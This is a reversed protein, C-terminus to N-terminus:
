AATSGPNWVTVAGAPPTVSLEESLAGRRHRQRQSRQATLFRCRWRAADCRHRSRRPDLRGMGSNSKWVVTVARQAMATALLAGEGGPAEGRHRAREGALDWWYQRWAQRRCGKVGIMGAAGRPAAQVAAGEAGAVPRRGELDGAAGSGRRRAGRRGRVVAGLSHRRRWGAIRVAAARMAVHAAARAARPVPDPAAAVGVKSAEIAAAIQRRLEEEWRRERRRAGSGRGRGGACPLAQARPRSPAVAERVPPRAVASAVAQQVSCSGTGRPPSAVASRRSSGSGCGGSCRARRSSTRAQRARARRRRRRGRQRRAARGRPAHPVTRPHM